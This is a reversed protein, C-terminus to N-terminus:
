SYKLPLIKSFAYLDKTHQVIRKVFSCFTALFFIPYSNSEFGLAGFGGALSLGIWNDGRSNFGRPVSWNPRGKGLSMASCTAAIFPM